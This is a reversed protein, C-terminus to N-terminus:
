KRRLQLRYKNLYRENPTQDWGWWWGNGSKNFLETRDKIYQKNRLVDGNGYLSGARKSIGNERLRRRYMMHRCQKCTGSYGDRTTRDKHFDRKLQRSECFSCKKYRM